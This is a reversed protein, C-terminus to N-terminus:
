STGGRAQIEGRLSQRKSTSSDCLGEIATAMGDTPNDTVEFVAWIPNGSSCPIYRKKNSTAVAILYRSQYVKASGLYVFFWSYQRIQSEVRHAVGNRRTSRRMKEQNVRDRARDASCEM